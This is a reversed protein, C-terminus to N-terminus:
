GEAGAQGAVRRRSACGKARGAEGERTGHEPEAMSDLLSSASRQILMARLAMWLLWGSRASRKRSFACRSYGVGLTVPSHSAGCLGFPANARIPPVRSRVSPLLQRLPSPHRPAAVGACEHARTSSPNTTRHHQQRQSASGRSVGSPGPEWGSELAQPLRQFVLSRPLLRALLGPSSFERPFSLSSSKGSPQETAWPWHGAQSIYNLFIFM